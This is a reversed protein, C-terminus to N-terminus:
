KIMLANGEVYLGGPNRVDERNKPLGNIMVNMVDSDNKVVFNSSSNYTIKMGDKGIKVLRTDIDTNKTFYVDQYLSFGISGNVFRSNNLTETYSAGVSNIRLFQYGTKVDNLCIRIRYTGKGFSFPTSDFLPIKFLVTNDGAREAQLGSLGKRLVVSNDCWLELYTNPAFYMNRIELGTHIDFHLQAYM